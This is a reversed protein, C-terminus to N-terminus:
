CRMVCLFYCLKARPRFVTHPLHVTKKRMPSWIKKGLRLVYFISRATVDTLIFLTQLFIAYLTVTLPAFATTSNSLIDHLVDAAEDGIAVTLLSRFGPYLGSCLLVAATIFFFCLHFIAAVRYRRKALFRSFGLNVILFLFLLEM